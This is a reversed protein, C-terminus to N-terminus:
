GHKQKAKKLFEIAKEKDRFIKIVMPFETVEMSIQFMRAMGYQFDTKVYYAIYTHPYMGMSPELYVAIKEMDDNTLTIATIETLDSFEYHNKIKDKLSIIFDIHQRTIEYNIEDTICTYVIGNKITSQITMSGTCYVTVQGHIINLSSNERDLFVFILTLRM